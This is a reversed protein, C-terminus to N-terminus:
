IGKQWNKEKLNKERTEELKNKNQFEQSTITKRKCCNIGQIKDKEKKIKM